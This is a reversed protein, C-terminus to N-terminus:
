SKAEANKIEVYATARIERLWNDLEQEFERQYLTQRAINRRYQETVDQQREGQVQLIHWGFPSQFPTSFDNTPTKQMMDDFAPVMEGTSVWGLSGGDRASGPDNSFTKALTDFDEGAQLRQYLNDIRSKADALSVVENPAILIHRVQWQPVITREAGRRDVLKIVHIGDAAIIPASVQNPQLQEISEALLSPLEAPKRYGMDGGGVPYSTQAAQSALVQQISQGAQLAQRVQEAITGAKQLDDPTPQEPLKVLFHATRLEDSLYLQSQPSALFNDIARDSIKIRSGIQQQRLRNISLDESMQQRLRAYSGAQRQDLAQQFASLSPANQKEALDALAANLSREDVTLGARKILGLQINRLILQRTVEAQLVADSPIAQSRAQLQGRADQIARDIDSQLIATSDVVVVVRDLSNNAHVMSSCNLAAMLLAASWVRRKATFNLSLEM